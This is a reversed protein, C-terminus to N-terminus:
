YLSLVAQEILFAVIVSVTTVTASMEAYEAPYHFEAMLNISQTSAPALVSVAITTRAMDTIPLYLWLLVALLGYILFRLSLSAAILRKAIVDSSVTAYLGLLVYLGYRFGKGSFLLLEDLVPSLGVGAIGLSFGLLSAPLTPQRLLMVHLLRRMQQSNDDITSQGTILADSEVEELDIEAKAAQKKPAHVAALYYLLGQSIWMNGALDWMLCIAVAKEGFKPHTGITTYLFSMLCGQASVLLWGRTQDHKVQSFLWRWFMALTLHVVGSVMAVFSLQPDLRALWASRLVTLPQLMGFIVRRVFPTYRTHFGSAQRLVMGVVVLSVIVAFSVTPTNHMRHPDIRDIPFVVGYDTSPM